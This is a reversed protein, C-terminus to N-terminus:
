GAVLGIILLIVAAVIKPISEAVNNAFTILGETAPTYFQNISTSEQAYAFGIGSVMLIFVASFAMINIRLKQMEKDSFRRQQIRKNISM